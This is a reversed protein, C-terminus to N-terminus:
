KYNVVEFDPSGIDSIYQVELYKKDTIGDIIIGYNKFNIAIRNNKVWLVECIETKIEIKNSVIEEQFENEIKKKSM